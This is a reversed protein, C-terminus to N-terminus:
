DEVEYTLTRESGDARNVVVSFREAQALEKLVSTSDEPSTIRIGNVETITDGNTLGIEELLSGKKIANVQVGVM